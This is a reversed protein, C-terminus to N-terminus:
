LSLRQIQNIVHVAGAGHVYSNMPHVFDGWEDLFAGESTEENSRPMSILMPRHRRSHKWHGPRQSPGPERVAAHAILGRRRLLEKRIVLGLKPQGESVLLPLYRYYLAAAQAHDSSQWARVVAVLVEPYAFGTMTGSSGCRLEDLLYVGGLGGIIAVGDGITAVIQAVRQPTPPDEVKVAIIQPDSQVLEAISRAPLTVGNVPPYDQLVIPLGTAEGIHQFHKTLSPGPQVFMPPAVMVGFAGAAEAMRAAAVTAHTSERSAGVVIPLRGDNVELVTKMVRRRETDDLEHAEGAVGLATVGDVGADITATTLRRVSTEDLEGNPLFPTALIAYVGSVPEM